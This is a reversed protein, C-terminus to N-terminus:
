AFVEGGVHTAPVLVRGRKGPGLGGVGDDLAVAAHKIADRRRQVLPDSANLALHGPAVRPLKWKGGPATLVESQPHDSAGQIALLFEEVPQGDETVAVGHIAGLAPLVITVDSDGAHVDPTVGVAGYPQDAQVRCIARPV